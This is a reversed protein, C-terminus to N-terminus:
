SCQIVKSPNYEIKDEWKPVFPKLLQDFPFEKFSIPFSPFSQSPTLSLLSDTPNEKKWKRVEWNERNMSAYDESWVLRRKYESQQPNEDLTKVVASINGNPLTTFLTSNSFSFLARSWTCYKRELYVLFHIEKFMSFGKRRRLALIM